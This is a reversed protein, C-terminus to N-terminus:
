HARHCPCTSRHEVCVEGVSEGAVALWVRPAARRRVEPDAGLLDHGRVEASSRRGARENAAVTDPSEKQHSTLPRSASVLRCLRTPPSGRVGARVQHKEPRPPPIQVRSRQVLDPAVSHSPPDHVEEPKCPFVECDVESHLPTAHSSVQSYTALKQWRISDGIMGTGPRVGKFSTLHLSRPVRTRPTKPRCSM